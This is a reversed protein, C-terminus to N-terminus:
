FFFLSESEVKRIFGTNQSYYVDPLDKPVILSNEENEKILHYGMVELRSLQSVAFPQEGFWSRLENYAPQAAYIIINSDLLFM